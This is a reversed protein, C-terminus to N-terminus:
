MQKWDVADDHQSKGSQLGEIFLILRRASVCRWLIDSLRNETKRRGEWRNPLNDSNREVRRRELYIVRKIFDGIIVCVFVYAQM